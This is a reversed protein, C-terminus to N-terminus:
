KFPEDLIFKLLENIPYHDKTFQSTSMITASNSNVLDVKLEFSDIENALVKGSSYLSVMELLKIMMGEGKVNTLASPNGEISVLHNEKIILKDSYPHRGMYFSTPNLQKFYTKKTGYNYSDSQLEQINEGEAIEYLFTYVDISDEFHLIIDINPVVFFSPDYILDTGFYNLSIASLDPLRGESLEHLSDNLSEPILQTSFHFGDPKLSNLDEKKHEKSLDLHGNVVISNHEISFDLDSHDIWESTTEFNRNSCMSIISNGTPNSSISDMNYYKNGNLLKSPLSALKSDTLSNSIDSGFRTLYLGVNGKIGIAENKNLYPSVNKEFQEPKKLNFLIGVIETKEIPLTFLVIDSTYDIGFKLNLDEEGADEEKDEILGAIRRLLGNDRSKLVISTFAEEAIISGDLKIISSANSPVFNLNSNDSQGQFLGHLAFYATWLFGLVFIVAVIKKLISFKSM